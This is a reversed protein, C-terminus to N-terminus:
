SISQTNKFTSIAEIIPQIVAFIEKVIDIEKIPQSLANKQEKSIETIQMKKINIKSLILSTVSIIVSTM